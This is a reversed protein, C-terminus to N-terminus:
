LRSMLLMQSWSSVERCRLLANSLVNSVVKQLQKPDFWCPISDKLASFSYRIQNTQAKEEFFIYINRLFPILDQESVNLCTQKQEAKQFDLLENILNQMQFTTKYVKNIQNRVALSVTNGNLLLEIQSIILSLPTRFEHSVNTFFSIKAKNLNTIYEKEKRAYELSAEM